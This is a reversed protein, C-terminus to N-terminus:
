HSKIIQLMRFIKKLNIRLFEPSSFEKDKLSAKRRWAKGQKQYQGGSPTPNVNTVIQKHRTPPRHIQKQRKLWNINNGLLM